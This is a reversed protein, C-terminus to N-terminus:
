RTALALRAAKLTEVDAKGAQTDRQALGDAVISVIGRVVAERMIARRLKTMTSFYHSVTGPACNARAGIAERTVTHYPAAAACQLAAELIAQKREPPALRTRPNKM